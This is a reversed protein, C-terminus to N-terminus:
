VKKKYFHIYIDGAPVDGGGNNYFAGYSKVSTLMSMTPHQPLSSLPSLYFWKVANDAIEPDLSPFNETFHYPKLKLEIVSSGPSAEHVKQGRAGVANVAGRARLLDCTKQPDWKEPTYRNDKTPYIGSTEGWSVKSLTGTMQVPCAKGDSQNAQSQQPQNAKSEALHLDGFGARQIRKAVINSSQQLTHTLEHALLHQGSTTEPSYKGAGFYINNGITFAQANLDRTLHQAESDNHVRVSSFDTAFRSEMFSQTAGPLTSGGGARQQIRSAIADTVAVGDGDAKRHIHTDEEECAACKRQILAPSPMRMVHNAMADAEHEAPDNTSGLIMKRQIRTASASSTPTRRTDQEGHKSQTHM